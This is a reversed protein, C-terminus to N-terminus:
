VEVGLALVYFEAGTLDGTTNIRWNGGTVAPLPTAGDRLQGFTLQEVVAGGATEAAFKYDKGGQSHQVSLATLGGAAIVHIAVMQGAVIEPGGVIARNYQAPMVLGDMWDLMLGEQTGQSNSQLSFIGDDDIYNAQRSLAYGAPSVIRSTKDYVAFRFRKDGGGSARKLVDKGKGFSGDASFLLGEASFTGVSGLSHYVPYARGKVRIPRQNETVPASYTSLYPTLRIHEGGVFHIAVEINDTLDAAM